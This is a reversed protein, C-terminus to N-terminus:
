PILTHLECRQSANSVLTVPADQRICIGTTTNNAGAGRRVDRLVTNLYSREAILAELRSQDIDQYAYILDPGTFCDNFIRSELEVVSCQDDASCTSADAMSQMETELADMLGDLTDAFHLYAQVASVVNRAGASTVATLQLIVDPDISEPPFTFAVLPEVPLSEALQHVAETIKIGNGPDGDDDLSQLLRLVDLTSFPSDASFDYPTLREAPTDAFGILSNGIYFEISEGFFYGFRGDADTVGQYSGSRYRMGEVPSDLLFGFGDPATDPNSPPATTSESGCAALIVASICILIAQKM